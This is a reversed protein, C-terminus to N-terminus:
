HLLTLLLVVPGYDKLAMRLAHKATRIETQVQGKSLGYLRTIEQYTMDEYRHAVYVRRTREPMEELTRRILEAVESMYAGKPENAELSALYQRSLRSATSHMNRQIADHLHENRLYDLCDHKISSLIYAPPNQGILTDRKQWYALFCDAVIDEAAMRDRLYFMAIRVFHKQYKTYLEEFTPPTAVEPKNERGM